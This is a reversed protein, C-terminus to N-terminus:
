MVGVVSGNGVIVVGTVPGLKVLEDVPSHM